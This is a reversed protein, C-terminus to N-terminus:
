QWKRKLIESKLILTNKESTKIPHLKNRKILDNINQRSCDLLEAAETANIVRHVVFERFDDSSLPIEIGNEYLESDSISMNEEWCIGYGGLQVQVLSFMKKNLSLFTELAKNKSFFERIDCKKITGNRFFALLSFNQLPVIDEIKKEFRKVIEEPMDGEIMEELYLEDQACRGNSLMLLDFEDYESLNNEKLVQGINQRDSPIIRQEVWMRSWYSNVTTINKKAFSSLILPTEWPDADDPLEIYFSKEKEYYLLYALTKKDEDNKIAFIRM